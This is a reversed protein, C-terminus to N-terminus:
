QRIGFGLLLIPRLISWWGTVPKMKTNGLSRPPYIKTSPVEVHRYGLKVTKWLLYVELGYADLWRQNLNIRQDDLLSLRFARFGNTSETLSKGLFLSMM